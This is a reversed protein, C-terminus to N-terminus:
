PFELSWWRRYTWYFMALGLPWFLAGALLPFNPSAIFKGLDDAQPPNMYPLTLLVFSAIGCAFMIVIAQWMSRLTVVFYLFGFFTVALITLAM